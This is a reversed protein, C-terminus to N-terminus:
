QEQGGHRHIADAPAAPARQPTAGREQLEEWKLLDAHGRPFRGVQGNAQRWPVDAEAPTSPAPLVSRYAIRPVPADPDAAREAAAPLALAALAAALFPTRL